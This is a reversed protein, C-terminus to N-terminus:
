DQWSWLTLSDWDKILFSGPLLVPPAWTSSESVRYSAIEQYRESTASFVILRGDDMLAIVQGPISLFM